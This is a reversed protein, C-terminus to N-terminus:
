PSGQIQECLKNITEVEYPVIQVTSCGNFKTEASTFEGCYGGAIVRGEYVNSITILALSGTGVTLMILGPQSFLGSILLAPAFFGTAGLATGGITQYTDFLKSYSGTQIQTFIVAMEDTTTKFEINNKNKIEKLKTSDISDPVKAYSNIGPDTFAMLYTLSSGPVLNTRMYEKLNVRDLIEKKNQETPFTVAIRSCVVCTRKSSDFGLKNALGGFLDLKGQGMVDWCDLMANAYTEEIKRANENTNKSLKIEQKNETEGAFQKCDTGAKLCIKETACKLPLLRRSIEPATARTLVSLECVQKESYNKIDLTVLVFVLIIGFAVIGTIFAFITSSSVEGGKEM